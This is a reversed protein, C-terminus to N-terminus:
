FFNYGYLLNRNIEWRMLKKLDFTYIHHLDLMECPTWYLGSGRELRPNM